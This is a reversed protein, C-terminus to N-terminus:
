EQAPTAAPLIPKWADSGECNLIRYHIQALTAGPALQLLGTQLRSRAPLHSFWFTLRTALPVAVPTPKEADPRAHSAMRWFDGALADRFLPAPADIELAYGRDLDGKAGSLRAPLDQDSDNVLEFRDEAVARLILRPAEAAALAGLDATSWGSPDTEDALRFFITGKAGADRAAAFVKALAARDVFRSAVIEEQAVATHAVRTDRDARFLTVGLRTPGLTRLNKHFCFDDWSWNPIQGRSLGTRDFVTLRAFSPLGARWPVPCTSWTRLSAAVSEPDLLPPPPADSSVGTPDAQMDYFMPAIEEVSHALAPFGRLAPWRTLATISLHPVTRRLNALAAAYDGLLRDPCDFDLQLEGGHAAGPLAKLLAPMAPAAFPAKEESTLRVVPVVHFGPALTVLPLPAHKWRWVGQRNQMEGVNWYLTQVNQKSLGDKEEATLPAARHWVWFAREFAEAARSSAALLLLAFCALLCRM